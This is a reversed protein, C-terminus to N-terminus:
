WDLLLHPQARNRDATDSQLIAADRGPKQEALWTGARANEVEGLTPFTSQNQGGVDPRHLPQGDVVVSANADAAPVALEFIREASDVVPRITLTHPSVASVVFADM